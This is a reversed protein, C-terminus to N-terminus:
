EDSSQDDADSVALRDPGINSARMFQDVMKLIRYGSDVESRNSSQVMLSGFEYLKGLAEADGKLDNLDIVIERKEGM